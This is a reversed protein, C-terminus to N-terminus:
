SIWIFPAGFAIELSLWRLASKSLRSNQEPLLQIWPASEKSDMATTPLLRTKKELLWLWQICVMKSRDSVVPGWAHKHPHFTVVQQAQTPPGRQKLRHSTQFTAYVQTFCKFARVSLVQAFVPFDAEYSNQFLAVLLKGFANAWSYFYENQQDEYLKPEMKTSLYLKLIWSNLLM